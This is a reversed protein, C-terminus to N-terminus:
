ATRRIEVPEPRDCRVGVMAALVDTSCEAGRLNLSSPAPSFALLSTMESALRVPTMDSPLLVRLLGLAELRRARKLQEDEGADGFPVVLAPVQSAILDMATNYGCQSLSAAACRLEAALDPVARRLVIGPTQAALRRLRRWAPEPLFPGTLVTLPRRSAPPLLLHAEVATQLVPEGVIGGGASVIISGRPTRCRAARRGPEHVFGTHHVAVPIQTGPGLSEEITAFAPDSHVLVVDFYAELMQLARADHRAQNANRSILIDRLSCCALPRQRDTRAEGLMPELEAAFKHRGFPFLEVVVADPRLSRYTELVMRRRAELARELNWRRDRSILAGSEDLGVPPLAVIRLGRVDAARPITGGVLLTVDFHTRLARTLAVSRMLHGMGVSHQCYFLLRPRTM